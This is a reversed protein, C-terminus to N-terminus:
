PVMKESLMLNNARPTLLVDFPEPNITATYKGDLKPPPCGHSVEFKFDRILRTFFVFLEAEAVVKGLCVRTGASFPLYSTAKNPDIKKDENLWRYPNFEEPDHWYKSDHHLQWLNIMITTDKPIFLNALTTESTTKHPLGLPSLSSARLTEKLSAKVLHLSDRDSLCPYRHEGVVTIIENFLEDQFKPYNIMYVISWLLTNMTTETGALFIDGLIHELHDDTLEEIINGSMNKDKSLKLVSDTFDRINNEDYTERHKILQQKLILFFKSLANQFEKIRNLPLFQLLPIFGFATTNSIGAIIKNMAM